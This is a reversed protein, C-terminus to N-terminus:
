KIKRQKIALMYPYLTIPQDNGTNRFRIMVQPTGLKLATKQKIEEVFNWKDTKWVANNWTNGQQMNLEERLDWTNGELSTYLNLNYNGSGSAGYKIFRITKKMEAAQLDVMIGKVDFDIGDASNIDSNTTEAQIVNTTNSDGYHIEPTSGGLHINWCYPEWGTYKFWPHPNTPKDLQIKTNAVMVIDNTTSTGTPIAMYVKNDIYAGAIRHAYTWNIDEITANINGSVLGMLPISGQENRRISRVGDDSMFWLDNGVQVISKASVCGIGNAIQSLNNVSASLIWADPNSGSLIYISKRKFIVLFEGLPAIGTIAQGDSKGVDFYNTGTTFTDPNGLDSFWVRNKYITGNLVGDGCVFLYNKWWASYKGNPYTTNGLDTLTTGDYSHINDTGNSIYMKDGAQTFWADLGTTFADSGIETWTGSNNYELKTTRIRLEQITGSDTILTSLGTVPDTAQQGRFEWKDGLTHGTTAGFTITVGNNLTQATGTIAIGEADWTTGGDDSWKFTDPTGIADIEVIYYTTVEENGDTYTGGVTLDDLGSGTFDATTVETLIDGVYDNGSRKKLYGIANTIGNQILVCENEELQDPEDSNNMGGTYSNKIYYYYNRAM